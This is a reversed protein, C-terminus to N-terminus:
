FTEDATIMKARQLFILRRKKNIGVNECDFDNKVMLVLKGGGKRGVEGCM